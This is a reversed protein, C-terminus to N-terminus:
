FFRCALLFPFTSNFYIYVFAFLHSVARPSFCCCTPLIVEGCYFNNEPRFDFTEPVSPGLSYQTYFIVAILIEPVSPRLYLLACECKPSFIVGSFIVTLYRRCLHVWKPSFVVWLYRPCLHDWERSFIMEFYRPCLHDWKPSFRCAFLFSCTLYFCILLLLCNLFRPSFLSNAFYGRWACYYTSRPLIKRKSCLHDWKPSFDGRFIKPVSPGMRTVVSLSAFFFLDFLFHM